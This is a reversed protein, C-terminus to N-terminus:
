APASGSSLGFWGSILWWGGLLIFATFAIAAIGFVLGIGIAVGDRQALGLAIFFVSLGPLVNGFPVPLAIIVGMVVVVLGLPRLAARGSLGTWRPRLWTEIWQLKPGLRVVMGSLVSRPVEIRALRKPLWFRRTGVVLQCSLIVLVTGFIMGAPVGPTPIIAPISFVLLVMATAQEGLVALLRGLTVPRREFYELLGGLVLSLSKDTQVTM